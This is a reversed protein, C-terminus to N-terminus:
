LVTTFLQVLAEPVRLPQIPVEFWQDYCETSLVHSFHIFKEIKVIILKLM